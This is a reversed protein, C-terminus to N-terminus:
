FEDQKVPIKMKKFVMLGLDLFDKDTIYGNNKRDFEPWIPDIVEKM